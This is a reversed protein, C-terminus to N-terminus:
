RDASPREQLHDLQERVREADRARHQGTYLDYAKELSQRAGDRHGLAEHVEALREAIEAEAFRNHLEHAVALAATYHELAAIRHGSRYAIYGLTELTALHGSHNRHEVHLALAAESCQQALEYQGLQARQRGMANLAHAQGVPNQVARYLDLATTAHHLAAQHDGLFSLVRQLDHHTHAQGITNGTEVEIQLAQELCSQAKALEDARTYARGLQRLSSAQLAPTALNETATVGLRSSAVNDTLFSMRYQYTDLAHALHWVFDWWGEHAAFRQVAHLQQHEESFWALAAAENELHQPQCGPTLGPLNPAFRFPYLLHDASRATHAYFSVLRRLASARTSLSDTAAALEGAHQRVLDHMHFRKPKDQRVLNKGELGRLLQSARDASVSLMCAAAATGIGSVPATGLLRFARSEDDDLSASSWSLVARLDASADGADFASLGTAEEQLEHALHSLPFEPHDATRAGVIALALPLGACRQVLTAMAASEVRAAHNPLHRMLLTRADDDALTDLRIFTAGHMTLGSLRNRTTIAM